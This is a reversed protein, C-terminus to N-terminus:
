EVAGDKEDKAGTDLCYGQAGQYNLGKSCTTDVTIKCLSHCPQNRKRFNWTTALRLVKENAKWKRLQQRSHLRFVLCAWHSWTPDYHCKLHRVQLYRLQTEQLSKRPYDSMKGNLTKWNIYKSSSSNATTYNHLQIWQPFYYKLIEALLIGDSFDRALNKKPKSLAYSDVWNLM